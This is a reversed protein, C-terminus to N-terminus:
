KGRSGERADKKWWKKYGCYSLLTLWSVVSIGISIKQASTKQYEYVIQNNGKKLNVVPEGDKGISFDSQNQNVYVHIGTYYVNPISVDTYNAKSDVHYVIRNYDYSTKKLELKKDRNLKNFSHSSLENSIKVSGKPLYDTSMSGTEITDFESRSVKLADAQEPDNVIFNSQALTTISLFAITTAVLLKTNVSSRVLLFCKGALLAILLTPILLLRFPFQFIQAFSTYEFLQWAFLNSSVFVFIITDFLIFKWFKNLKKWFCISTILIILSIIGLGAASYPLEKIPTVSLFMRDLPVSWPYLSRSTQIAMDKINLKAIIFPIIFFATLGLTLMGALFFRWIKQRTDSRIILLLPLFSIVFFLTVLMGPINSLLIGALGVSLVYWKKYNDTFILYLGYLVIPLFIMCLTEGIDRRYFMDYFKYQSLGYVVAAIFAAIQNKLMKNSVYYMSAFILFQVLFMFALYAIYIKSFLAALIAMPFVMIAPYFLNVPYGYSGFTHTAIEPIGLHGQKLNRTIEEIRTLHFSFDWNQAIVQGKSYFPVVVLISLFVFM